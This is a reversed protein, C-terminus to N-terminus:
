TVRVERRVDLALIDLYGDLSLDLWAVQASPEHDQVM